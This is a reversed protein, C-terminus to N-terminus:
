FDTIPSLIDRNPVAADERPGTEPAPPPCDDIGRITEGAGAVRISLGNSMEFDEVPGWIYDRANDDLFLGLQEGFGRFCDSGAQVGCTRLSVRVFEMPRSRCDERGCPFVQGSGTEADHEVRCDPCALRVARSEGQGRSPSSM